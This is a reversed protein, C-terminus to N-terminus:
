RKLQQNWKTQRRTSNPSLEFLEFLEWFVGMSPHSIQMASSSKTQPEWHKESNVSSLQAFLAFVWHSNPPIQWFIWNLKWTGREHQNGETQWAGWLKGTTRAMEVCRIRSIPLGYQGVRLQSSVQKCAIHCVIHCIWIGQM